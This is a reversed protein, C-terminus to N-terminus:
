KRRNGPRGRWARRVDPRRRGQPPAGRGPGLPGPRRAAARGAGGRRDRRVPSGSPDTRSAPGQRRRAPSVQRIHVATARAERGVCFGGAPAPAGFRGLLRDYRGGSALPSTGGAADIEFTLGTYYPASPTGALDVVVSLGPCAAQAAASARSLAEADERLEPPAFLPSRPDFGALLSRAIEAAAWEAAGAARLRREVATVRRSRVDGEATSGDSGLSPAVSSLLMPLLGAFGLTVTLDEPRVGALCSLALALMTEDAEFSSDGYREAGVQAFERARGVGSPEDRVVDGRYFFSVPLSAGDIRPAVVRAAMPTFDARLSLTQGERDIFRYLREDGEATIGRYPDAYDLVPLIVEPLGAAALRTAVTEEARRRRAAAEFLFAQVGRPLNARPLATV